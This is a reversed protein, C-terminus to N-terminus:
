AILRENQRAIGYYSVLFLLLCLLLLISNRTVSWYSIMEQSSSRFCGCSIALGRYLVSAHVFTFFAMLGLSTLLAGSLFIGGVLCVGLLLELWPASLASFEGWSPMAATPM